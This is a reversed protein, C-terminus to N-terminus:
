GICTGAGFGPLLGLTLVLLLAFWRVTKMFDYVELIFLRDGTAARM